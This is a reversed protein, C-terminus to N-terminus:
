GLESELRVATTQLRRTIRSSIQYVNDASIDFISAIDKAPRREVVHLEFVMMDRSDVAERVEEMAKKTIFEQWEDDWKREFDDTGPTNQCTLPRDCPRSGIIEQAKRSSIARLYDRFHGKSQDYNTLVHERFCAVLVDQILMDIETDDLHYDMGRMAILPRYFERFLVWSSEDGDQMKQLLTHNTTYPM